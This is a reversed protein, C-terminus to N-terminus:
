GVLIGTSIEISKAVFDVSEGVFWVTMRANFEAM